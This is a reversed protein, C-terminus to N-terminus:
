CAYQIYSLTSIIKVFELKIKWLAKEIGLASITSLDLYFIKTRIDNGMMLIKRHAENFLGLYEEYKPESIQAWDYAYKLWEVFGMENPKAIKSEFGKRPIAIRAVKVKEQSLNKIEDLTYSLRQIKRKPKKSQVQIPSLHM